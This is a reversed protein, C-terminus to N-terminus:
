LLHTSRGSTPPIWTGNLILRPISSGQLHSLKAYARLESHYCDEILLRYQKEQIAAETYGDEPQGKWEFSTAFGQGFKDDPITAAVEENALCWPYEPKREDFFRPDYIKIVVPDHGLEPSRALIVASKTFPAFPKDIIFSLSKGDSTQFTIPRGSSFMPDPDIAM